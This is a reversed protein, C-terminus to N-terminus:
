EDHELGGSLLKQTVNKVWRRVEYLASNRIGKQPGFYFYTEYVIIKGYSNPVKITIKAQHERM